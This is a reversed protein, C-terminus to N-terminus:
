ETGRSWVSHVIFNRADKMKRIAPLLDSIASLVGADVLDNAYKTRHVHLLSKIASLRYDPGLKDTLVYGLLSPALALRALISEMCWEVESWTVAVRGIAAFQRRTLRHQEPIFTASAAAM